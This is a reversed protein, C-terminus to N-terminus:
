GSDRSIIASIGLIKCIQQRVIPFLRYFTLINYWIILFPLQNLSELLQPIIGIYLKNAMILM